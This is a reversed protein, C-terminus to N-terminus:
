SDGADRYFNYRLVRQDISVDHQARLAKDLQGAIDGAIGARLTNAVADVGARNSEATAKSISKLQAVHVGNRSDAMTARGISAADFLDPALAPAMGGKLGQGARNFAGSGLVKYRSKKAIDAIKGGTNLKAVLDKAKTRAAKWREAQKWDERVQGRVTDLTRVTAPVITDVHVIFFTNNEGEALLSDEDKGTEFLTKLFPPGPLGAIPKDNRDRGEANVAEVARVALGLERAAEELKAGGGISEELRNAQEFVADVAEENAIEKTLTKRIEDLTPTKGPTIEAVSLLQLGFPGQVPESVMGKSLKFATEAIEAPLDAKTLTGLRTAGEDQGALDKAVAVFDEGANLRTRAKDATAQDPVLMQLVTRREPVILSSLRDNYGAELKEKSVTIEKALVVPDLYVFRVGRYEPAQYNVKNTNYYADIESDSPAKVPSNPDVPIVFWDAERKEERWRYLREALQNPARAPGTLSEVYQSRIMQSRLQALFQGESMGNNRLVNQFQLPDITGGFQKRIQERLSSKGVVMGIDDAASDIIMGTVLRNLTQDLLGMERAKQEDINFQRLRDVERRFAQQLEPVTIERSGVEAVTNGIQGFIYSDSFGWVVFSAALLFAFV